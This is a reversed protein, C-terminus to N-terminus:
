PWERASVDPCVCLRARRSGAMAHRTRLVRSSPGPSGGNGGASLSPRVALGLSGYPTLAVSLLPSVYAHATHSGFSVNPCPSRVDLFISQPDFQMGHARYRNTDAIKLATARERKLTLERSYIDNKAILPMKHKTFEARVIQSGFV